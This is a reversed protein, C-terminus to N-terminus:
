ETDNISVDVTEDALARRQFRAVLTRDGNLIFTYRRLTSKTVGGEIWRVFRYGPKPVARVTRRSGAPFTGVGSVTGGRAPLARLNISYTQPVQRFNAVLIRNQNLTFNYNASTSVQNGSETWNVFRYGSNASATVTRSSGSAFTGGGGVSGGASPSASVNITYTSQTRVQLTKNGIVVTNDNTEYESTTTRMIWGVYYTGAPQSTPVTLSTTPNTYTFANLSGLSRSGIYSDATSIVDNTSLYFDVTVGNATAFGGNFVNYLVSIPQGPDVITTQLDKANTAFLYEILNARATPPRDTEDANLSNIIDTIMYSTIRTEGAFGARNSTSNIGQIWREGTSGDFRWAPGGSHGGYTYADLNIRTATASSVNNTDFGPYQRYEDSPVYPTEIPYGTFNLSAAVTTEAGMWGTHDGQRRDLSVLGFDYNLDQGSTWNTYSRLFTAKALGYPFDRSFVGVPNVRDTQAAWVWVEDAWRRDSTNGDDNPDWNYICHGATLLLFSGRASASCVWYYDTGNVNFRMLMKFVSNWPFSLVETIPGPVTPTIEAAGRQNSEPNPVPKVAPHSPGGGARRPAGKGRNQPAREKLLRPNSSRPGIRTHRTTPNHEIISGLPRHLREAPPAPNPAPKATRLIELLEQRSLNSQATAANMTWPFALLFAALWLAGKTSKKRRPDLYEAAATRQSDPTAFFFLISQIFQILAVGLWGRCTRVSNDM